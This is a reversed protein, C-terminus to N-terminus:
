RVIALTLYGMRLFLEPVLRSLTEVYVAAMQISEIYQTMM